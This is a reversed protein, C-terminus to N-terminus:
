GRFRQRDDPVWRRNFSMVSCATGAPMKRRLMEPCACPASQSACLALWVSLPQTEVGALAIM